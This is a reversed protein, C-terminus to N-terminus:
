CGASFADVFDLYDFFDLEGDGTIDATHSGATFADVFDLYDFFDVNGDANFDARCAPLVTLLAPRTTTSGCSNTLTCTFTGSEALNLNDITLVSTTAGSLLTGGAAAGNVVNAGNRQWQYTAAADATTVSFSVSEGARATAPAPQALVGPRPWHGALVSVQGIGASLAVLDPVGDANVDASVVLRQPAGSLLPLPFGFTGTGNGLLMSAHDAAPGSAILDIRGDGNLDAATLSTIGDSLGYNIPSAFSGAANNVLVTLMTTSATALALDPKNDGNFDAAVIAGPAAGTNFTSPAAFTGSATGKFVSCTNADTNAVAIDANGDGDFDAIALGHHSLPAGTGAAYASQFTGDGRGLLIFAAVATSDCTCILDPIGDHNVDAVSVCQVQGVPQVTAPRFTGNGNGIIISLGLDASGVILDTVGDGNLDSAAICTPQSPGFISAPSQFTGAVNLASSIANPAAVILDPTSDGNLDATLVVTANPLTISQGAAFGAPCRAVATVQDLYNKANLAHVEGSGYYDDRGVTGKDVAGIQMAQRIQLADFATPYLGILLAAVGSVHPAAMSTGSLSTYSRNKYTSFVSVGPAALAIHTGYNSFSARVGRGDVAAVALVSSYRAPYFDQSNGSNGAAAVVLTNAALAADCSDKLGQDFDPGGLSMNIVRAHHQVAWDIGAAVWSDYGSGDDGLVKGILLSASPAVGVVGGINDMAAMIGATHTGHGHGDEVTQGDVFSVTAVAHPLDPHTLNVGTDLDACLVGTGRNFPWVLPGAVATIGPPIPQGVCTRVVYDPNAYQVGPTRNLLDVAQNVTGVPVQICRLGPVLKSQYLLAEARVSKDIADVAQNSLTSDVRFFVHSPHFRAAAASDSQTALPAAHAVLTSLACASGVAAILAASLAAQLISRHSVRVTSTRNHM